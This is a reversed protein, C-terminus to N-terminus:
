IIKVKTNQYNIGYKICYVGTIEQSLWKLGQWYGDVCFM